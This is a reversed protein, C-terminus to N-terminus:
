GLQRDEPANKASGLNAYPTLTHGFGAVDGQWSYGTAACTLALSWEGEINGAFARPGGMLVFMKESEVAECVFRVTRSMM